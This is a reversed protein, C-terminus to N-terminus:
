MALSHVTDIGDVGLDSEGYPVHHDALDAASEASEVALHDGRRVRGIHGHGGGDVQGADVGAVLTAVVVQPGGVEEVYGAVRGHV